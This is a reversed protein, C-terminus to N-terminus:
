FCLSRRVLASCQIYPARTCPLVYTLMQVSVLLINRKKSSNSSSSCSDTGSHKNNNNHKDDDNDKKPAFISRAMCECISKSAHKEDKRQSIKANAVGDGRNTNSTDTHAYLIHITHKNSYTQSYKKLRLM